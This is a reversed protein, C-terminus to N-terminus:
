LKGQVIQRMLFGWFKIISVVNIEVTVTLQGFIQEVRDRLPSAKLKLVGGGGGVGEHYM